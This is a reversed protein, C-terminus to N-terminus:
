ESQESGSSGGGSEESNETEANIIIEIEASDEGKSVTLTVKATKNGDQM